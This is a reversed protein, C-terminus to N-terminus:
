HRTGNTAILSVEVERSSMSEDCASGWCIDINESLENLFRRLSVYLTHGARDSEGFDKPIWINFLITTLNEIPIPVKGLADKLARTLNDEGEAHGTTVYNVGDKSLTSKVDSVDINIHGSAFIIRDIDATDGVICYKDYPFHYPEDITELKRRLEEMREKETKKDQNKM